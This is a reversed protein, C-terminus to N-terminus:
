KRISLLKGNIETSLWSVRTLEREDWIDQWTHRLRRLQGICFM